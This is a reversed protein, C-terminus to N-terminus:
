WLLDNLYLYICLYKFGNKDPHITSLLARCFFMGCKIGQKDLDMFCYIMERYPSLDFGANCFPQM